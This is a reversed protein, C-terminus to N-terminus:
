INQFQFLDFEWTTNDQVNISLTQIYGPQERFMDGITLDVQPAIMM